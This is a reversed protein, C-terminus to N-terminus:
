KLSFSSLFKNRLAEQPKSKKEFFSLSYMKTGAFINRNYMMDYPNNGTSDKSIVYEIVPRGNWTTSKESVLSAGPIQGLIGGKFQESFGDTQLQGALMASDLGFKVFDLTLAMCRATTDIDQSWITNGGADKTEPQSPFSISARDDLKVTIWEATAFAFIPVLLFALLQKRMFLKKM